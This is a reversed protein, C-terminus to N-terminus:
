YILLWKDNEKILVFTHSLETTIPEINLDKLNSFDVTCKTKTKVDAIAGKININEISIDHLYM